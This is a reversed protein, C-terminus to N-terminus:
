IIKSFRARSRDTQLYRDFVMAIGRIFFWGLETVTLSNATLHVMGSSQLNQLQELESAFYTEFDILHAAEIGLFDLEGQCM